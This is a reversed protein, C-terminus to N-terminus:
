HRNDCLIPITTLPLQIIDINDCGFSQWVFGFLVPPYDKFLKGTWQNVMPYEKDFYNLPSLDAGEGTFFTTEFIVENTNANIVFIKALPIFYFFTMDKDQYTYAYDLNVKNVRHDREVISNPIKTIAEWKFPKIDGRYFPNDKGIYVFSDYFSDWTNIPTRDQFDFGILYDWPSVVTSSEYPTIHAVLPVDRVLYSTLQNEAYNYVFVSDNEAFHNQELFRARYKSDLTHYSKLNDEALYQDAIVTSDPHNKFPFMDTLPVFPTYEQKDKNKQLSNIPYIKVDLYTPLNNPNRERSKHFDAIPYVISRPLKWPNTINPYDNERKYYAISDAWLLDRTLSIMPIKAQNIIKKEIEDYLFVKGSADGNDDSMRMSFLEWNNKSAYVSYQKDPSYTRYYEGSTSMLFVVLIIVILIISLAIKKM